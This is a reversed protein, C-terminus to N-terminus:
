NAPSIGAAALPEVERITLKDYHIHAMSEDFTELYFGVEGSAYDGDTVQTVPKGNIYFIFNGGSADIRLLDATDETQGQISADSGQALIELGEPLNKLVYWSQTRSSITFAYYQDGARRLALGYRFDGVETDSKAIFMESEVTVDEFNPDRSVVANEEPVNVEVHYFDPPHYDYIRTEEAVAPWGSAPNTFNDYALLGQQLAAMIQGPDVERVVLTDYHIHSMPEDFNEVFFGVEGDAYDGDSVLTVFQGNIYFAFNEGDADVRLSDATDETLGQISDHSGKDLEALGNPGNKLVYWNHTRSSITFAYYQDGNQRVMLGYRFDGTDNESKAVFIDSEVTFDNFVPGFSVIQSAEPVNVEVHYFDPPHYGFLGVGDGGEGSSPWGSTPDSFDDTFLPSSADVVNVKDAACRIGATASMTPVTPDGQLRYAMDQLFGHAGGRLVQNGEVITAYPKDVWEWVNGGMDFVGFPSRNQAVSGVPYSETRPLDIAREKNGWPYLLGTSGRAAVEWEAETPLRKQAWSCYAVAMDWTIGEVPHNELGPPLNGDPWGGPVPQGAVKALFAAYQANTVEYQDLWYENLEVQQLPVHERDSADLGVTYVGGKIRVMQDSPPLAEDFAAVALENAANAQTQQPSLSTQVFRSLVFLVAVGFILLVVAVGIGMMWLAANSKRKAPKVAAAKKVGSPDTAERSRKPTPITTENFSRRVERLGEAMDTASQYRNNPSKALSKEIVDILEDPASREIKSIDPLPDNVHKMMISVASEGDFPPQGTVMEYLMVGLSYIDAREDPHAGRAQEPSMYKATGVVTGTATHHAADLMKAVGFDMLIPQSNTSLIVNAPKLDRHIMGRQHAYAVADCIITMISISEAPDLRGHIANLAKLRAQLTDGSVYELIMYYLEGEHNFDYVQIINPHRLQAVAAAEQEFRRVFQPDSSLHQHILKVAVKRQLNPDTALYVTSMGGQGLVAELRYRGAITHGIWDSQLM